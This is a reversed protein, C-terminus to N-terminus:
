AKTTSEKILINFYKLPFLLSFEARELQRGANTRLLDSLGWLWQTHIGTTIILFNSGPFKQGGLGTRRVLPEDPDEWAPPYHQLPSNEVKVTESKHGSHGTGERGSLHMLFVGRHSDGQEKMLTLFTMKQSLALSYIEEPQLPLSHPSNSVCGM